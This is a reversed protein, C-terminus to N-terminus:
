GEVWAFMVSTEADTHLWHFVLRGARWDVVVNSVCRRLAANVAGASGDGLAVQLRELRAEVVPGHTVSIRGQLEDRELMLERAVAELEGIRERVAASPRRALESVLTDIQDETASLGAVVNEFTAILTVSAADPIAQLAEAIIQEAHYRLADEVADQKVAHYTCGAGARAKSCVLYRYTKSKTVRLMSGHCMPCRALGGPCARYRTGAKVSIPTKGARLAGVASWLLSDVIAPYYGDIAAQVGKRGEEDFEVTQPTLRGIVSADQLLRAVYARHWFRGQRRTGDKMHRGFM